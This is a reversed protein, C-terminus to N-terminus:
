HVKLELRNSSFSIYQRNKLIKTADKMRLITINKDKAVTALHCLAGGNNVIIMKVKDLLEVYKPSATRVVAIVDDDKDIKSFDYKTDMIKVTGSIYFDDGSLLAVSHTGYKGVIDEQIKNMADYAASTLEKDEASSYGYMADLELDAGLMWDTHDTNDGCMKMGQHSVPPWKELKDFHASFIWSGKMAWHQFPVLPVKYVDNEKGEREVVLDFFGGIKEAQAKIKTRLEAIYKKEDEEEEEKRKSERADQRAQEVVRDRIAQDKLFKISKRYEKILENKIEIEEKSLKKESELEKRLRKIAEQANTFTLEKNEEEEEKDIADTHRVPMPYWQQHGREEPYGHNEVYSDLAQQATKKVKHWIPVTLTSREFLIAAGLGKFFPLGKSEDIEMDLIHIRDNTKDNMYHSTRRKHAITKLKSDYHFKYDDYIDNPGWNTVIAYPAYTINNEKFLHGYLYEVSKLYKDRSETWTDEVLEVEEDKATDGILRMKGSLISIVQDYSIGIISDM